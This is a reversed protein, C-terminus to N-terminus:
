FALRLYYLNFDGLYYPISAITKYGLEIYFKMAKENLTNVMIGRCGNERAITEIKSHLNKGYNKNRYDEKVWLYNLYFMNSHIHGVGGGIVENDLKCVVSKNIPEEGKAEALGYENVGNIVTQVDEKTANEIFKM